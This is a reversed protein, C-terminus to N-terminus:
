QQGGVALKPGTGNLTDVLVCARCLPRSSLSGCRKCKQAVQAMISSANTAHSKVSMVDADRKKGGRNQEQLEKLSAPPKDVAALAVADDDDNKGTKQAADQQTKMEEQMLALLKKENVFFNEGSSVVNAICRPNIAELAKLLTRANGRFAEKSYTCETSFYDLQNFHAYLVIEKEYLDRMPKVRPITSNSNDGGDVTASSNKDDVLPTDDDAVENTIPNTCRELRPMDSRLLNMLVTEATDDANHGTAIKTAGAMRAGKELAHRRFVGCNGIILPRHVRGGSPKRRVVIAGSPVTVCWSGDRYNDVKTISGRTITPVAAATPLSYSVCWHDAAIASSGASNPKGQDTDAYYEIAAHVSFGAVICLQMVQDRFYESSTWVRNALLRKSHNTSRGDAESLGRLVERAFELRLFFIFIFIWKPSKIVGVIIIAKVWAEVNPYSAVLLGTHREMAAIAQAKIERHGPFADDPLDRFTAYTYGYEGFFLKIWSTRHVVFHAHGNAQERVCFDGDDGKTGRKLGLAVLHTAVMKKDSKKKPAFVVTPYYYYARGSDDGNGSDTHEPSSTVVNLSGDGLWYGYLYLFKKALESPTAGGKDGEDDDDDDESSSSSSSPSSDSNSDNRPRRGADALAPIVDAALVGAASTAIPVVGAGSCGGAASSVLRVPENGLTGSRLRTAWTGALLERVTVKNIRQKGGSPLQETSSWEHVLLHHNGTVRLSIHKEHLEDERDACLGKFPASYPLTDTHIEYMGDDPAGENDIFDSPKEYVITKAAADYGAVVLIGARYAALADAYSMWGRATLLEMDPKALCYTCNSKSGIKAVIKDMSWGNYLDAYSVITLPLNYQQSNRRVTVLSEDRYGTIGEDVSVLVLRLGYNHRQNMMQLLHMLVTSDKGGSAGCAVVEGPTFMGSNVVTRHFDGEVARFFCQRCLPDGNKPRKMAASAGNCAICQQVPM